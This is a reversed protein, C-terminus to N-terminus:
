WKPRLVLSHTWLRVLVSGCQVSIVSPHYTDAMAVAAATAHMCAMLM